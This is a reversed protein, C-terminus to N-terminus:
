ESDGPLQRTRLHSSRRYTLRGIFRNVWHDRSLFGIVPARRVGMSRRLRVLGEHAEEIMLGAQIAQLAAWRRNSLLEARALNEFVDAGAEPMAAARRCLDLGGPAKLHVMALGECSLYFPYMPHYHPLAHAAAQFRELADRWDGAEAMRRGEEFCQQAMAEQRSFDPAAGGETQM